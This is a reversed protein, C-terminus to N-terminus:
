LKRKEFSERPDESYEANSLGGDIMMDYHERGPENFLCTLHCKEM